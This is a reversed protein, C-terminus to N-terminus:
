HHHGHGHGHGHHHGHGHNSEEPDKVTNKRTFEELAGEYAVFEVKGNRLRIVLDGQKSFFKEKTEFKSATKHYSLQGSKYFEEILAGGHFKKEHFRLQGNKYYTKTIFSDNEFFLISKLNGNKFFEKKPENQSLVSSTFCFLLIIFVYKM